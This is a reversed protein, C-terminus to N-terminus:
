APRPRPKFVLIAMPAGPDARIEVARGPAAIALRREGVRAEDLVTMTGAGRAFYLITWDSDAELRATDLVALSSMKGEMMTLRRLVSPGGAEAADRLAADPDWTQPSDGDLMRGDDDDVYLNGDFPPSAFVLNGQLAGTRNVWEHGCLPPSYLVTGPTPRSPVSVLRGDRGYVHLVEPEGSVIATAEHTTRHVHLPCQQGTGIVHMHVTAGPTNFYTESTDTKDARTRAFEALRQGLDVVVVPQSPLAAVPLASEATRDRHERMALVAGGVLAVLAALAVFAWPSRDAASRSRFARAESM